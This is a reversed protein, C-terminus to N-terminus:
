QVMAAGDGCWRRVTAATKERRRVRRLEMAAAKVVLDMAAAKEAGDGCWRRLNKQLM